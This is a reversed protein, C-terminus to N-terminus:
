CLHDYTSTCRVHLTHVARLVVPPRPMCRAFSAFSPAIFVAGRTKVTARRKRIWYTQRHMEDKDGKKKRTHHTRGRVATTQTVYSRRETSRPISVRLVAATTRTHPLALAATTVQSKGKQSNVTPNVQSSSKSRSMRNKSLISPVQNM